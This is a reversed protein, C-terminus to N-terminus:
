TQALETVGEGTYSEPGFPQVQRVDNCPIRAVQAHEFVDDASQAEYVCHITGGDQDWYSSLWRLGAYYFACTIARYSAADVEEQTIGPVDRRILFLPM